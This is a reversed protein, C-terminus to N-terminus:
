RESVVVTIHSTRKNIRDTQGKARPMVRKIMPGEDIFIKSIFLGDVDLDYNHEANALSSDLVKKILSASSKKSFVLMDLATNVNLGRIQNAVLRAKQPSIRAFRHKSVVEM